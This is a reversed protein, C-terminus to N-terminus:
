GGGGHLNIERSIYADDAEWVFDELTYRFIDYLMLSFTCSLVKSELFTTCMSADIHTRIYLLIKNKSDAAFFEINCGDPM